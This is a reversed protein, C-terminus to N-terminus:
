SFYMYYAQKQPKQHTSTPARAREQPKRRTSLPAQARKQPAQYQVHGKVWACTRTSHKIDILFVHLISAKATKPPHKNACM